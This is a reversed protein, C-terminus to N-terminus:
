ERYGVLTRYQRGWFDRLAASLAPPEIIGCSETESVVGTAADEDSRRGVDRIRPVCAGRTSTEAGRRFMKREFRSEVEKRTTRAQGSRVRILALRFGLKQLRTAAQGGLQPSPMALRWGDALRRVQRWLGSLACELRMM